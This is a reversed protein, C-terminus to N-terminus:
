PVCCSPTKLAVVECGIDGSGWCFMSSGELFVCFFATVKWKKLDRCVWPRVTLAESVVFDPFPFQFVLVLFALSTLEGADELSPPHSLLKVLAVHRGKTQGASPVRTCPHLWSTPGTAPLLEGNHQMFWERRIGLGVLGCGWGALRAVGSLRIGGEEPSPKATVGERHVSALPATSPGQPAGQPRLCAGGVLKKEPKWEAGASSRDQLVVFSSLHYVAPRLLHGCGLTLELVYKHLPQHM